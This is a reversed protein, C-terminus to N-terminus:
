QSRESTAGGIQVDELLDKVAQATTPAHDTLMTFHDGPVEVVSELSEWFGSGSGDVASGTAIGESPEAARIMAVPVGLEEPRWEAFMAFYAASATLRADDVPVQLQEPAASGSDLLPELWTSAAPVDSPSDLLVVAIPARDRRQLQSAVAHALWGGSSYGVLAFPGDIGLGLIAEAQMAAAAELTAPLPEGEQFGLHPAVVVNREGRFGQAFRVYEQPGSTPVISPLLVLAPTESGEALDVRPPAITDGPLGEFRARLRSASAILDAFEAVRGAGGSEEFLTLFASRGPSPPAAPDAGNGSGNSSPGGGNAEWQGLVHTAVSAASSRGAVVSGPVPLKTAAAIRNRLETAGLSDLGLEILLAEPDVAEASAHGLVAAAHARVLETMVTEREAPPVEALRQALADGESERHVAARVLGRLIPPLTGAAAQDRIAASDFTAPVLLPESAELAADLLGLVRDTPMPNLGFRLRVQQVLRERDGDALDAIGSEEAWFGWGLSTAPLGRGHRYAALADLYSNAAANNAQGAAGLLCPASSFLLFHSLDAEATLEHLHWALDLKSRMVREFRAADLSDLMGDDRVGAAQVVVRLPHEAPISA